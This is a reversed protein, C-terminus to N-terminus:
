QYLFADDDYVQLLLEQDEPSLHNFVMEVQHFGDDASARYPLHQWVVLVLALAAAASATALFLRRLLKKRPKAAPQPQSAKVDEGIKQRMADFFGEPVTYPMERGVNELDIPQKM